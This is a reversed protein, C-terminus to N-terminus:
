TTPGCSPCGVNGKTVCEVFLGYTPFDHINWMCMVKLNFTAKQLSDYTKVGNWLM